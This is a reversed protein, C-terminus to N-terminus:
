ETGWVSANFIYAIQTVICYNPSGLHNLPLSDAQWYSLCLAGPNLRQDSLAGPNHFPLGSWFEQRPFEMSLPAQSAITWPTTFLQVHSRSQACAHAPFSPFLRCQVILLDKGCYELIKIYMGILFSAKEM